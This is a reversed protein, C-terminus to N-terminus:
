ACPLPVGVGGGYGNTYVFLALSSQVKFISKTSNIETLKTSM